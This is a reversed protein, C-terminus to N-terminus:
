IVYWTSLFGNVFFVCVILSFAMCTIAQLWDWLSQVSFYTSGIFWFWLWLVPWVATLNCSVTQKNGLANAPSRNECHVHTHVCRDYEPIDIQVWTCAWSSMRWMCQRHLDITSAPFVSWSLPPRPPCCPQDEALYVHKASDLASRLWCNTVSLFLFCRLWHVFCALVLM